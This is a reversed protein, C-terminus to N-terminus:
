VAVLYETSSVRYEISSTQAGENMCSVAKIQKAGLLLTDRNAIASMTCNLTMLTCNVCVATM